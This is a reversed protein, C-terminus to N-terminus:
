QLVMITLSRWFISSSKRMKWVRSQCKPVSVCFTTYSQILLILYVNYLFYLIRFPRATRTFLQSDENTSSRFDNNKTTNVKQWWRWSWVNTTLKVCKKSSLSIFILIDYNHTINYYINMAVCMWAATIVSNKTHQQWNHIVSWVRGINNYKRSEIAGKSTVYKGTENGMVQFRDNCIM